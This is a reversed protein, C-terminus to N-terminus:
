PQNAFVELAALSLAGTHEDVVKGNQVLMLHPVGRLGYREVLEPNEDVDVKVFAVKGALKGALNEIVPAMARCPGCWTASFDVVVPTPSDLVVEQFTATDAHLTHM